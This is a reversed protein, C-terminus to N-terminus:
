NVYSTGVRVAYGSLTPWALMQQLRNRQKLQKAATENRAEMNSAGQIGYGTVTGTRDKSKAILRRQTM